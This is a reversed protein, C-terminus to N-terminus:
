RGRRGRLTEDIAFQKDIAPWICVLGMLWSISFGIVILAPAALLSDPLLLAFVIWIVFGLLAGALSRGTNAFAILVSNKVIQSTKLEIYAIQVFIYPATMGFILLTIIGALILAINAGSQMLNQWLYIQLYVFLTCLIGPAMAQKLNEKFKRKFDYWVYGPDRRIMKTVCFMCACVSGGIPFAAAISLVFAFGGLIGLFNLLFLAASPLACVCFILNLKVLNWFDKALAEFFIIM